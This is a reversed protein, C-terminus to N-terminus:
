FGFLVQHLFNPNLSARLMKRRTSVRKGGDIARLRSLAIKRLINLNKPSNDKRARCGDENFCVDLMWHLQNEISWHGRIIEGFKLADEDLSSIYYRDTVTTQEGVTRIERREIRGHDKEVESRWIDEPLEKEGREDLYEFYERVEEYLTPQNEKVALVYGAKKKRVEEAIEKQCGMADITITDGQIDILELLQPIATIENSKKETALQGPTLNKDNVWASVVHIAKHEGTKGSGRITKGDISVARGGPESMESLWGQLAMMLEGPNVREFVRRFTDGDPIGHPLEPFQRFWEERDRGVEEMEDFGEGRLTISCLGIVLIDLLKHRLDGGQQRPDHVKGLAAKMRPVAAERIEM